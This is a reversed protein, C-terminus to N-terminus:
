AMDHRLAISVAATRSEAHMRALINAVHNAATKRSIFLAVAIEPNSEGEIQLRLVEL